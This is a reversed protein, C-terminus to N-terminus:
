CRLRSLGQLLLLVSHTRQTHRILLMMEEIWTKPYRDGKIVKRRAAAAPQSSALRITNHGDRCKRDCRRKGKKKIQVKKRKSQFTEQVYILSFSISGRVLTTKAQCRPLDALSNQCGVVRYFFLIPLVASDDYIFLYICSTNQHLSTFIAYFKSGSVGKHTQTPKTRCSNGSRHIGSAPVSIPRSSGVAEKWRLKIWYLYHYEFAIWTSWQRKRRNHHFASKNWITKKKNTLM